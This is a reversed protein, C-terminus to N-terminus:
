LTSVDYVVTQAHEYVYAECQVVRHVDFLDAPCTSRDTLITSANAFRQCNDFSTLSTGPIANLIWDPAYVATSPEECEPILCRSTQHWKYLVM